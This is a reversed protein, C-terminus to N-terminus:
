FADPMWGLFCGGGGGQELAMPRGQVVWWGTSSLGGQGGGTEAPRGAADPQQVARQLRSGRRVRLESLDQFEAPPLAEPKRHNILLQQLIILLRSVDIGGMSEGWRWVKAGGGPGSEVGHGNGGGRGCEYRYNFDGMWVVVEADRLGAMALPVTPATGVGGNACSNLPDLDIASLWGSLIIGVPEPLLLLCCSLAIHPQTYTCSCCLLLLRLLDSQKGM